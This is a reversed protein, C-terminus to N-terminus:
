AVQRIEAWATTDHLQYLSVRHRFGAKVRKHWFLAMLETVILDGRCMLVRLAM